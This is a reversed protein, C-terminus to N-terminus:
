IGKEEAPMDSPEAYPKSITPAKFNRKQPAQILWLNPILMQPHTQTNRKM